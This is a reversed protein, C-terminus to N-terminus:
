PAATGIEPEPNHWGGQPEIRGVVEPPGWTNADYDYLPTVNNLISDVVEWSAEIDDASAFLTADGNLGDGLLREYPRMEDPPVYHAVLEVANGTMAEGPKKVRTGMALIMEPSLRFRYYNAVPPGMEDLVPRM